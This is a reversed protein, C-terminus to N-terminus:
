IMKEPPQWFDILHLHLKLTLLLFQEIVIVTYIMKINRELPDNVYYTRVLIYFILGGGGKVRTRM